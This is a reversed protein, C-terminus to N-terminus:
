SRTIADLVSKVSISEICHCMQKKACQPCEPDHVLIKVNAGLPKWRGPHIPKRPSYLGITLKGLFGSIHLPGTSCAVLADCSDIFAILESLSFKGTTDHIHPSEPILERFQLGEKETGTFYVEFNNETLLIALEMYKELPWELASGQSKPHLILRRRKSAPLSFNDNAISSNAKFYRCLSTLEELSPSDEFGLPALLKFNLQSEHLKSNKRTFSPRYNCTLLHFSRHSTGIRIPVQAKKALAAIKKNPFVHILIDIKLARFTNLEDLSPQNDLLDWDVFEDVCSYSEVISKTYTRGLFLIHCDPVNLKLWACMPLTLMVDGISDTRSILIRKGAAEIGKKM